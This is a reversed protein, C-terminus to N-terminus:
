PLTAVLVARDSRRLLATTVSGLFLRELAQVGHRGAAIVDANARTAVDQLETVIDGARSTWEVHVGSPAALRRLQEAFLGPVVTDRLATWALWAPPAHEMATGVHVLTLTGGADLLSLATRAAEDSAPSFDTAVVVRRVPALLPGPVAL